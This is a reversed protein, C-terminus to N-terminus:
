HWFFNMRCMLGTGLRILYSLSHNHCVSYTGARVYSGIWSWSSICACLDVGKCIRIELEWLLLFCGLLGSMWCSLLCFYFAHLLGVLVPCAFLSFVNPPLHARGRRQRWLFSADLPFTGFSGFNESFIGDLSQRILQPFWSHSSSCWSRYRLWLFAFKQGSLHFSCWLWCPM